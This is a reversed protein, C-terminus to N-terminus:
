KIRHLERLNTSMEGAGPSMTPVLLRDRDTLVVKSDGEAIM